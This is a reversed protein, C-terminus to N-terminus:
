QGSWLRSTRKQGRPANSITPGTPGPADGFGLLDTVSYLSEIGSHTWLGASTSSINSDITGVSSGREHVPIPFNGPPATIITTSGGYSSGEDPAMSSFDGHGHGQPAESYAPPDRRVIAAASGSSISVESMKREHRSSTDQSLPRELPFPSVIGHPTTFTPQIHNGQQTSPSGPFSVPSEQTLLSSRSPNHTRLTKPSNMVRNDVDNSPSSSLLLLNYGIGIGHNGVSTNSPYSVHHGVFAQSMHPAHRAKKHRCYLLIAAAIGIAFVLVGGVVGGAIAGVNTHTSPPPSPDQLDGPELSTWSFSSLWTKSSRRM